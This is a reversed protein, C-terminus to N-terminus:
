CIQFLIFFSSFFVDRLGSGVSRPRDAPEDAWEVWARVPSSGARSVLPARSGAARAGSGTLLLKPWRILNRDVATTRRRGGTVPLYIRFGLSDPRTRRSTWLGKGAAVVPRSSATCWPSGMSPRSPPDSDLSTPSCSPSPSTWSRHESSSSESM